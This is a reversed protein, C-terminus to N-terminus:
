PGVTIRGDSSSLFWYGKGPYLSDAHIYDTGDWGYPSSMGLGLPETVIHSNPIPYRISGILNWGRYLTDSFSPLNGPVEITDSSLGLAWYGAGNLLSDPTYYDPITADYGFVSTGFASTPESITSPISFLNWGRNIEVECVASYPSEYAGIDWGLGRPRAVSDYDFAPAYIVTDWLAIYISEAGADICPSGDQLHFDDGSPNALMPISDLNGPGFMIVDVSRHAYCESSDVINFAVYLSCYTVAGQSEVYIENWREATNGWLINNLIILLGDRCFIGGGLCQYYADAVASNSYITNNAIIPRSNQACYIGGGYASIDGNDFAINGSIINNTISPDSNSCVIGGGYCGWYGRALNNEITNRSITPNADKCYIGGGNGFASTDALILNDSILADSCYCYIGGGSSTSPGDMTYSNARNQKILNNIIKPSCYQCYIGGGFDYAKNHLITNGIINAESADCYIGGGYHREFDKCSTKNNRIFCHIISIDSNCCSLGGGYNDSLAEGRAYGHSIECFVLSCATSSYYFRIGHHGGTSDTLVTDEATFIISDEATGIAKLVAASDVCFKYHGQFIVEVGPGIRLSDGSPVCISDTVYYPSGTSDWVGSVTGSVFTQAFAVSVMVFLLAVIIKTKMIIRM